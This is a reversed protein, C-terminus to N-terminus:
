PRELLRWFQSFFDKWASSLMSLHQQRARVPFISRASIVNLESMSTDAM